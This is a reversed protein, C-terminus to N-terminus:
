FEVRAMAGYVTVKWGGRKEPRDPVDEGQVWAGAWVTGLVRHDAQLQYVKPAPSPDDPKWGALFSVSWSPKAWETVKTTREETRSASSAISTVMGTDLLKRRVSEEIVTEDVAPCEPCVGTAPAPAAPRAAVKRITTKRDSVEDTALNKAETSATSTATTATKTAEEAVKKPGSYRGALFAIALAVVAIGIRTIWTKM